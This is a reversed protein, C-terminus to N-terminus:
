GRKKNLLMIWCKEKDEQEKADQDCHDEKPRNAFLWTRVRRRRTTARRAQSGRWRGDRGERGGASGRKLKADVEGGGRVLDEDLVLCLGVAPLLDLFHLFLCSTFNICFFLYLISNYLVSWFPQSSFKNTNFWYHFILSGFMAAKIWTCITALKNHFELKAELHGRQIWLKKKLIQGLLQDSDSNSRVRMLQLERKLVPNNSYKLVNWEIPIASISM